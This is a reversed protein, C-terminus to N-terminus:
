AKKITRDLSIAEIIYRDRKFVSPMLHLLSWLPRSTVISFQLMTYEFLSMYLQNPDHPPSPMEEVCTVYRNGLTLIGMLKISSDGSRISEYFREAHVDGQVEDPRFIWVRGGVVCVRDQSIWLFNLSKGNDAAFKRFLNVAEQFPTRTDKM